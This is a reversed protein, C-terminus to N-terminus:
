SYGEGVKGGDAHRIPANKTQKEHLVPVRGWREVVVGWLPRPFNAKCYFHPSIGHKTAFFHYFYLIQCLFHFDSGM